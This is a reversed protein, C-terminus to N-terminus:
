RLKASQGMSARADRQLKKDLVSQLMKIQRQLWEINRDEYDHGCVCPTEWCKPCDSLSM